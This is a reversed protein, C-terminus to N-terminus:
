NKFLKNLLSQLFQSTGSKQTEFVKAEEETKEKVLIRYEKGFLVVGDADVTDIRIMYVGPAIDEVKHTFFSVAGKSEFSEEMVSVLRKEDDKKKDYEELEETKVIAWGAGSKQQLEYAGIRLLKGAQTVKVSILLNNAVIPENESPNVLTVAPDAAALSVPAFVCLAFLMATTLLFKKM